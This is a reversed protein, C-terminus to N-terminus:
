NGLVESPTKGYQRHFLKTYYGVDRFGSQYAAESVNAAKAALLKHGHELRLKRILSAPTQATLNVVRRHLQRTSVGTAQALEAVQFKFDGVNEQIITRLRNEFDRDKLLLSPDIKKAAEVTRYIIEEELLESQEDIRQRAADLSTVMSNFGAAIDGFEDRSRAELEQDFRGEDVGELGKNIYRLPAVISRVVYPRFLFVIMAVTVILFLAAPWLKKDMELRRFRALDFWLSGQTAAIPLGSLKSIPPPWSRGDQIGIANQHRVPASDPFVAGYSMTIAGAADLRVQFMIRRRGMDRKDAEVWSIINADNEASIYIDFAKDPACFVAISAVDNVCEYFDRVRKEPAAKVLDGPVVQGSHYIFLSRYSEGYFPFDFPLDVRVPKGPKSALRLAPDSNWRRSISEARYGQPLASFHLSKQRLLAADGPRLQQDQTFSALVLAAFTLLLVVTLMSTIRSALNARKEIFLFYTAIMGVVILMNNTIFAGYIFEWPIDRFQGFVPTASSFLRLVSTILFGLVAKQDDPLSAATKMMTMAKLVPVGKRKLNRALLIIPWCFLVVPLLHLRGYEIGGYYANEAVALYLGACWLATAAVVTWRYIRHHKTGGMGALAYCLEGYFIAALLITPFELFYFYRTGLTYLSDDLLICLNFALTAWLHRLLWIRRLDRLPSRSVELLAVAGLITVALLLLSFHTFFIV